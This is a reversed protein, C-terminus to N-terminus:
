LNLYHKIVQFDRELSEISNLLYKTNSELMEIIVIAHNQHLAVWSPKNDSINRIIIKLNRSM